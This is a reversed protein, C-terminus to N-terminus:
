NYKFYMVLKIEVNCHMVFSSSIIKWFQEMIQIFHQIDNCAVQISNLSLQFKISNLNLQIEIWNLLM